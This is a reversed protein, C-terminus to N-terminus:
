KILERGYPAAAPAAAPQGPAGPAPAAAYGPHQYMMMPAAAYGPAAGYAGYAPVGHAPPPPGYGANATASGDANSVSVKIDINKGNLWHNPKDQLCAWMSPAADFSVYAFGRANGTNMDKIVKCSTVRGYKEMFPLLMADTSDKPLAGVFVTNPNEDKPHGKKGDGYKGGDKGGKKGFDKGKGKGKPDKGYPDHATAAQGYPDYVGYAPAAGAAGYAGMGYLGPNMGPYGGKGGAAYGYPDYPDHWGGKGYADKGGKGGKGSYGYPDKGWGKGDDGGGWGDDRAGLAKNSTSPKVELTTGNLIHEKQMCFWADTHETMQIFGFGRSEGGLSKMVTSATVEGFEKFYAKLEDKTM